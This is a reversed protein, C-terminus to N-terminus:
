RATVTSNLSICTPLHFRPVSPQHSVIPESLKAFKEIFKATGEDELMIPAKYSGEASWVKNNNLYQKLRYGEETLGPLGGTNSSLVVQMKARAPVAKKDKSLHALCCQRLQGQMSPISTSDNRLETQSFM